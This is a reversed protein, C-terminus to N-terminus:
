STCFCFKTCIKCINQNQTTALRYEILPLKLTGMRRFFSGTEKRKAPWFERENRCWSQVLTSLKNKAHNVWNPEPFFACFIVINKEILIQCSRRRNESILKDTTKKEFWASGKRENYGERQEQRGGAAAAAAATLSDSKYFLKLKLSPSSLHFNIVNNVGWLVKECFSFISYRNWALPLLSLAPTSLAM